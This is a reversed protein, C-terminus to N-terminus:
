GYSGRETLRLKFGVEKVLGVRTTESRGGPSGDRVIVRVTEESSSPKINKTKGRGGPPHSVTVQPQSGTRYV